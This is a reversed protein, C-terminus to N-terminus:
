YKNINCAPQNNQIERTCYFWEKTIHNYYKFKYKIFKNPNIINIKIVYLNMNDNNNMWYPIMSSVSQILIYPISKLPFDMNFTPKLSIIYDKYEDKWKTVWYYPDNINKKSEILESHTISKLKYDSLLLDIVINTPDLSKIYNIILIRTESSNVLDVLKRNIFILKKRWIDYEYLYKKYELNYKKKYILYENFKPHINNNNNNNNFNVKIFNIKIFKYLNLINECKINKNIINYIIHSLENIPLEGKYPIGKVYGFDNIGIMFNSVNSTKLNLFSSIYKPLYVQFYKNLNDIVINNFDFKNTSCYFNCIDIDLQLGALNFTFEKYEKFLNEYGIFENFEM